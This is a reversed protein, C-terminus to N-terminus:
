ELIAITVADTIQRADDLAEARNINLLDCRMFVVQIEIM